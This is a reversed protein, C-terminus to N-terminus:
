RPGFATLYITKKKKESAEGSKWLSKVFYDPKMTYNIAFLKGIVELALPIGQCILTIEKIAPSIEPPWQTLLTDAELPEMPELEFTVM